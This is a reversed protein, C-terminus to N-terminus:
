AAGARHRGTRDYPWDLRQQRYFVKTQYGNGLPLFQGLMVAAFRDAALEVGRNEPSHWDDQAGHQLKAILRRNIRRFLASAERSLHSRPNAHDVGSAMLKAPRAVGAPDIRYVCMLDYDSAWVRGSGNVVGGSPGSKFGDKSVRWSKAPAIGYLWRATLKPCRFVLLYPVEHTVLRLQLVDHPDFGTARAGQVDGVTAGHELAWDERKSTLIEGISATLGNAV